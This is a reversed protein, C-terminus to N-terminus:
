TSTITPTWLRRPVPGSAITAYEGQGLSWGAIESAMCAIMPQELFVEVAAFSYEDNLKFNGLQVIALDGLTARTFLLAAKWSGKCELGMDVVTAGCGLKHVKCGIAEPDALIERIVGMVNETLSLM